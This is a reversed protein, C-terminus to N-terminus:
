EMASEESLEIAVTEGLEVQDSRDLAIQRFGQALSGVNQKQTDRSDINDRRGFECALHSRDLMVGLWSRNGASGAQARRPILTVLDIAWVSRQYAQGVVGQPTRDQDNSVVQDPAILVKSDQDRSPPGLVCIGAIYANSYAAAEAPDGKVHHGTSHCKTMRASLFMVIYKFLQEVECKIMRYGRILKQSVEVSRCDM